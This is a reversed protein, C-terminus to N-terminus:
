RRAGGGGLGITKGAAAALRKAKNPDARLMEGQKTLNWAKESWPNEGGAGGGGGGGGGGGSSDSGSNEEFLHPANKALGEAWEKMSIPEGLRGFIKEGDENYAVPKGDELRWTRSARAIIDESASKRLGIETATTIVAQDVQLTTLQKNLKEREETLTKVAAEHEETMKAMRKSVLEDVKEKTDAKSMEFDAEKKVLEAHKKPDIGNFAELQKKLEINNKRFEDVKAAPAAGECNLIWKGETETFHGRLDEPIETETDYIYKLM